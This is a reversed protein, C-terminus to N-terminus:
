CFVRPLARRLYRVFTKCTQESHAFKQGHHVEACVEGLVADALPCECLLNANRWAEQIFDQLARFGGAERNGQFDRIGGIPRNGQRRKDFPGRSPQGQVIDPAPLQPGLHNM